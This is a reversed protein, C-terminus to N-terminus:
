SSSCPLSNQEVIQCGAADIIDASASGDSADARDGCLRHCFEAPLHGNNRAFKGNGTQHIRDDHIELAASIKRGM